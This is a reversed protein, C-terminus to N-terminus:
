THGRQRLRFCQGKVREEACSCKKRIKQIGNNIEIVNFTENIIQKIDLVTHMHVIPRGYFLKKNKIKMTKEEASLQKCGGFHRNDNKRRRRLLALIICRKNIVFLTFQNILFAIILFLMVTNTHTNIDMSEWGLSFPVLGGSLCTQDKQTVHTSSAGRRTCHNPAVPTDEVPVLRKM